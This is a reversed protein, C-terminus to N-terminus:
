RQAAAATVAALLEPLVVHLKAIAGPIDWRARDSEGIENSVVRVELAPVGALEAARLVGFGEMAEVAVAHGVSGVAASTGIPHIPAGPIVRRAAEVLAADARVRDIVPIAAALDCYIAEAGIVVTGPALGRAGAVGVHLVAAHEDLALARATASAAEVPGLGCALGAFPGLEGETAAVLLLDPVHGNDWYV